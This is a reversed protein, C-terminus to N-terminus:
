DAIAGLDECGNEGESLGDTSTAVVRDYGPGCFIKDTDNGKGMSSRSPCGNPKSSVCPVLGGQAHMYDNGPGGYLRDNGYDGKIYDDGTYGLILDNDKGGYLKDSGKAGGIQDEGFESHVKDNGQHARIVDDQPTGVITDSGATGDILRAVAVGSAAVVLVAMCTLLIASRRM